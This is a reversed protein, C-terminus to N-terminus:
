EIVSMVESGAVDLLYALNRKFTGGINRTLGGHSEFFIQVFRVVVIRGRLWDGDVLLSSVLQVTRLAVVFFIEFAKIAHDKWM